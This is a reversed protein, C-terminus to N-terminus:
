SWAPESRTTIATTPSTPIVFRDEYNAIAMYRYMEEVQAVTLRAQALVAAQNYRRAFLRTWHLPVPIQLDAEALLGAGARRMWQGLAPALLALALAAAAMWKWKGLHTM